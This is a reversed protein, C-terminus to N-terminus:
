VRDGERVFLQGVIGGTPHQVKKVNTDVVVRAEAMVAGALDATAAWGGIGLVLLACVAVSAIVHGRISPKWLSQENTSMIRRPRAQPSWVFTRYLELPAWLFARAVPHLIDFSKSYRKRRGSCRYAVMPSFLSLM